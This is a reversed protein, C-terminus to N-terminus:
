THPICQFPKMLRPGSKLSQKQSLTILEQRICGESSSMRNPSTASDMGVSAEVIGYLVRLAPAGKEIPNGTSILM